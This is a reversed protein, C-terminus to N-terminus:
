MNPSEIEYCDGNKVVRTDRLTHKLYLLVVEEFGPNPRLYISEQQPCFDVEAWGLEQLDDHSLDDIECDEYDPLPLAPVSIQKLETDFYVSVIQRNREGYAHSFWVKPSDYLCNLHQEAIQIAEEQNLTNIEMRLVGDYVPHKKVVVTESIIKMYDV